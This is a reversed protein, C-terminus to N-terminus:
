RTHAGRTVHKLAEIFKQNEEPSGVTVRIATRAGWSGTLPRVIIGNMQLRRGLVSADEGTEIYLFNAWSEVPEYGLERLQRTLVTLQAANNCMSKEYHERDDLAALAGAEGVGNVIFATKLRVLYSILEAPGMGYGVRAAALGYAKSFTRLVVVSREHRVYDIAHSYDLNRARALWDAYEFYAEDLAVIVNEPLRDLFRDMERAPIMTGTPNNPNAIFVLRTDSDIADSIADLDFGDNRTPVHRLEAGASRTVIPYVIFSRESTVANLGPSLLTRALIDLLNTSGATVILQNPSIGHHAALRERLLVMDNDPYLHLSKSAAEMARIALPSPGFPNENSGLKIMKLGSEAEAQQIPKGPVYAALARVREPVLEAFKGM